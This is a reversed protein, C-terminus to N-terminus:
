FKFNYTITPIPQDFVSLQFVEINDGDTRSFVSYANNRGTLNYVSLSWSGHALKKIKHNGELNLAIDLRMYDPIRFQNRESFAAYVNGRFEYKTIPFTVPRGTSYTFNMSFNARRSFKYNAVVSLNHPKDYSAPFEQGRNIVEESFRAEADLFVRSYTYSIWGNLKGRNKKMLFEVGYSRGSASIVDTEVAENLILQAGDKYELLNQMWKYYGEVSIEYGALFSKYLGASIQDGIQPPLHTNALRWSDTPAVAVTNTLRHIYQRTRDYSLKVSVDPLLKYRMSFRYEPGWYTEMNEGSAFQVTDTITEVSKSFGPDYVFSNGPGRQQYFSVRLGGYVSLRRTITFEDGVYLATEIAQEEPINLEDVVSADGFPIINTPLLKYFISSVGFKIDHKDLFYNFDLKLNTQDISYESEFANTTDKKSEFKNLYNSYSASFVGFLKPNFSHRWNFTATTNYYNFLTDSNLKFRDRSHYASLTVDNKENIQHNIKTVFDSFGGESNELEPIDILNLVWNSYTSRVGVIFSSTDKKIPGEVTVRGTVPSVGGSVTFKKKNGDRLSVDFVSSIRGGFQSQIGSKYLSTSKLVDPNFASFFGFLHNPNYILVDDLLILNQDTAGGRVNFGSAGEGVSQVGPQTLVIKMVDAEGLITPISKIEKISLKVLGTQISEVNDKEGLVVVENLSIIDEIMEVDLRGDGYIMVRRRTDKMGVSKFVLTHEGKPLNLVFYGFPDTNTGVLPEPKFVSAGVLGEGSKIDKVYGSLTATNGSSRNQPDGIIFLKNELNSLESAKEELVLPEFIELSADEEEEEVVRDPDNFNASIDKVIEYDRTLIIRNNNHVYYKFNTNRLLQDMFVPLIVENATVSVNVTDMWEPSFYFRIPYRKELDSVAEQFPLQSYDATIRVDGTQASVSISVILFLLLICNRM